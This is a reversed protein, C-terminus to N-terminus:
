RVDQLTAAHDRDAMVYDTGNRYQHVLVGHMSVVPVGCLACTM